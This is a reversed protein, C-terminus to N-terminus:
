YMSRSSLTSYIRIYKACGYLVQVQGADIIGATDISLVSTFATAQPSTTNEFVSLAYIEDSLYHLDHKACFRMMAIISDKPQM